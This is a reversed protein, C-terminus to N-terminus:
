SILLMITKWVIFRLASNQRSLMERCSISAPTFFIWQLIAPTATSRNWELLYATAISCTDPMWKERRDTERKRGGGTESEGTQRETEGEVQRVRRGHVTVHAEKLRSHEVSEVPM